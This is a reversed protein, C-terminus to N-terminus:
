VSPIAILRSRLKKNLNRTSITRLVNQKKKFFIYAFSRNSFIFAFSNLNASINWASIACLSRRHFSIMERTYMIIIGEHKIIVVYVRQRARASTRGNIHRSRSM